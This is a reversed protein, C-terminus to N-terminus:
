PTFRRPDAMLRSRCATASWDAGRGLDTLKLSVFGVESLNSM